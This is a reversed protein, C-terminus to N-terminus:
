RFYVVPKILDAPKNKMLDLAEPIKDLGEFRHTVMKAPSVRGYQLVALLKEMRRRGGPALGGRITKHSLGSGWALLPVPLAPVGTYFNINSVIGGPRVMKIAAEFTQDDGGAIIVKDVGKKNTLTRMQAAIDGDRYSIVDTAGYSKAIKVCNERTGVVFLRGAGRLAAGAVAMLGVPGIGIVAVSEGFGVEAMEVGHFGTSMMDTAMIADEPDIGAPIRAANMDVDPVIFFEAFCGDLSFAYKFADCITEQHQHYTDQVSPNRWDPTIAPVLVTEGVKYDRVREGVAVIEAIAEHGLIRDIMFKPTGIEFANHIDSSCPAVLVPKVLADFPGPTPVPKEIWGVSEAPKLCGYGRM